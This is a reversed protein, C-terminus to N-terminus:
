LLPLPEGHAKTRVSLHELYRRTDTSKFHLAGEGTKQPPSCNLTTHKTHMSPLASVVPSCERTSGYIILTHTFSHLCKWASVVHEKNSFNCTRTLRRLPNQFSFKFIRCSCFPIKFGSSWKQAGGERGNKRLCPRLIGPDRQPTPLLSKREQNVSQRGGLHKHNCTGTM